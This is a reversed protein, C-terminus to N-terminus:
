AGLARAARAFADGREAYSRFQDMSACAPALLVTDGPRALGAAARVASTMVDGTDGPTVEVVPVDPAHRALAERLPARDLGILVVAHLRDARQRVLEEFRAGKALGGAIWVARGAPVAALSAAAAHANTAKSDDVYAVGGHRAVLEIRHAGAQYDRLGRAVAEPEVGHARALAAATLADAVVHDPLDARLGSGTLHLLDDVTALAVAHTQRQPLFARDCLDGDVVGLEAVAPSGLTTGIARAGEQVDAQEVMERTAPDAVAYVCARETRDFVKAKAAWYAEYSGHWDLHDPAINLCASAQPAVSHTLHLQFSSLEVALVDAAGEFAVTSIPHGVNGVAPARRGAAQLISSLMGVTTTKGNTGTLTLWPLRSPPVAQVRWALEVESWCPVGLRVARSLLPLDPRLGPSAVLIDPRGDPGDLALDALRPGDPEGARQVGEPLDATEVAAPDSDLALV